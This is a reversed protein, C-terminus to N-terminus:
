KYNIGQPFYKLSDNIYSNNGSTPTYNRKKNKKKMKLVFLIICILFDM